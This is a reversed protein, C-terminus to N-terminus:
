LEHRRGPHLPERPRDPSSDQGDRFLPSLPGGRFRAGDHYTRDHYTAIYPEIVVNANPGLVDYIEGLIGGIEPDGIAASAVAGIREEGELEVSQADLERLAVRTGKDIGRRLIM